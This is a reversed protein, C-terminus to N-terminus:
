DYRTVDFEGRGILWGEYVMAFFLCMTDDWLDEVKKFDPDNSRLESIFQENSCAEEFLREQPETM